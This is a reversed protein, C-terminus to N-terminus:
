YGRPRGPTTDRPKWIWNNDAARCYTANSGVSPPASAATYGIELDNWCLATELSVGRPFVVYQTSLSDLVCERPFTLEFGAFPGGVFTHTPRVPKADKM